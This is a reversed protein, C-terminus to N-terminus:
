EENLLDYMEDSMKVVDGTKPRTQVAARGYDTVTLTSTHAKTDGMKPLKLVLKILRGEADLTAAYPVRGAARLDAVEDTDWPLVDEKARSMDLEGKITDGTREATDANALIFSAGTADPHEFGSFEEGFEGAREADISLWKRGGFMQTMSRLQKVLKAMEPSQDAMAEVDDLDPMDEGFDVKMKMWRDAGVVLYRFEGGEKSKDVVHMLASEPLHVDGKTTDAGGTSTYRYNGKSLQITSKVLTQKPTEAASTAPAASSGAAKGTVNCGALVLGATTLLALGALPGRRIRM